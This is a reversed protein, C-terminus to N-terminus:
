RSSTSRSCSRRGHCTSTACSGRICSASGAPPRVTSSSARAAGRICRRISSASPSSRRPALLTELDGKVDFFDVDRTAEGWQEPDAPGYALGGVRLPQAFGAGERRFIRGLEFIRARAVKRNVNIRLTEILGPLMSTRMVDLHAAIPNLVAVPKTAPDIAAEAAASVFSFTIVEQWGLDM